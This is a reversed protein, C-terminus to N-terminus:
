GFHKFITEAANRPGDCGKIIEAYEAAQVAADPNGLLSEIAVQVDRGIHRSKDVRVAFGKRVLCSINAVQEPQMGIGVVPKGAIAATLATGIGGHIVAIDAQKNVELAPLWDYVHVNPPVLVDPMSDLLSKVPAIVRYPMDRFSEQIDAVIRPIGSSGMAFYVVPLDAPFNRLEDPLQFDENTLLPGIFEHDPPLPVMSFDEPEAVLTVDGQFFDFIPRYPQAKYHRAAANVPGIFGFWMWFRIMAFILGDALSKLFRSKMGITIGAGSSFFDRTWTSQVVWVLPIGLIRCSLPMSLYSGTVVAVPKLSELLRIDQKVKEIMERKDYAPAFKEEDNVALIHRIKENSLPHDVTTLSFGNKLILEGFKGGESIFKIDFRACAEPHNRIGKAIELMRSTEALNYAAPAFILFKKKIHM